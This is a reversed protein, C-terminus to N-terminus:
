IVLISIEIGGEEEIVCAISGILMFGDIPGGKFVMNSM